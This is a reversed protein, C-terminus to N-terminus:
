VSAASAEGPVLTKLFGARRRSHTKLMAELFGDRTFGDKDEPQILNAIADSAAQSLVGSQVLDKVQVVDDEDKDLSNFVSNWLAWQEESVEPLASAPTINMEQSQLRETSRFRHQDTQLCQKKGSLETALLKGFIERASGSMEPLRYDAPAMMRLFERFDICGDGAQDYSKITDKATEFDWGWIHVLDDFTIYGRKFQDLKKFEKELALLESEPLLPKSENSTYVDSAKQLEHLEKKQKAINDYEQLWVEYMRLHQPGASPCLKKFFDFADPPRRVGGRTVRAEPNLSDLSKVVKAQIHPSFKAEETSIAAWVDSASVPFRGAKMCYRFVKRALVCDSRTMLDNPDLAHVEEPITVATRHSLQFQELGADFEEAVEDMSPCFRQITLRYPLALPDETSLNGYSWDRLTDYPLSQSSPMGIKEKFSDAAKRAGSLQGSSRRERITEAVLRKLEMSSGRLLEQVRAAKIVSIREYLRRAITRYEDSSPQIESPVDFAAGLGTIFGAIFDTFQAEDLSRSDDVDVLSLCYGVKAATPILRSLLVGAMLLSVSPIIINDLGDGKKPDGSSVGHPDFLIAIDRLNHRSILMIDQLEKASLLRPWKGQQERIKQLKAFATVWFKLTRNQLPRFAHAPEGALVIEWFKIKFDWEPFESRISSRIDALSCDVFDLPQAWREEENDVSTVQFGFASLRRHAPVPNGGAADGTNTRRPGAKREDQRSVPRREGQQTSPRSGQQTGPRSGQQTSPRGGQSFSPRRSGAAADASPVPLRPVDSPRTSARRISREDAASQPPKKINDGTNAHSLSPRDGWNGRLPVSKM